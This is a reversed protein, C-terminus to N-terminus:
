CDVAIMLALGNDESLRPQVPDAVNCLCMFAVTKNAAFFFHRPCPNSQDRLDKGTYRGARPSALIGIISARPSAFPTAATRQTASPLLQIHIDRNRTIALIKPSLFPSLVLLLLPSLSDLYLVASFSNTKKQCTECVPAGTVFPMLRSYTPAM